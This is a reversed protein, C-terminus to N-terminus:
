SSEDGIRRDNEPENRKLQICQSHSKKLDNEPRNEFGAIRSNRPGNTVNTAASRLENLGRTDACTSRQWGLPATPKVSNM